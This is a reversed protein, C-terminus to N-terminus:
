PVNVTRPLIQTNRRLHLAAIWRDAMKGYGPFRPKGKRCGRRLVANPIEARVLANIDKPDDTREFHATERWVAELDHNAAAVQRDV